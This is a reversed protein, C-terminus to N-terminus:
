RKGSEVSLRLSLSLSLSLSLTPWDALTRAVNLNLYHGVTTKKRNLM